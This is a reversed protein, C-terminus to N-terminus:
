HLDEDPIYQMMNPIIDLYLFHDIVVALEQPLSGIVGNQKWGETCMDIFLWEAM